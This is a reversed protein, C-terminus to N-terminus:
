KSRVAVGTLTVGWPLRVYRLLAAEAAVIGFLARNLWSPPVVADSRPAARSGRVLRQAAIAPFLTSNWYSLWPLVLGGREILEVVEPRRYRRHHWLARDHDSWLWPHAPVTFVLVGGPRLVRRIERVAEADHEIHELVDSAVVADFTRDGFPLATGLARSYFPGPRERAFRVATADPEIGVVRGFATYELSNGGTGSGFDLILPKRAGAPVPLHRRLLDVLLRRRGRFWWHALEQAHMIAYEDNRM